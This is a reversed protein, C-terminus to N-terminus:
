SETSRRQPLRLPSRRRRREQWWAWAAKVQLKAWDTLRRAWRFETGLVTVMVKYTLLLAPRRETFARWRSLLLRFRSDSRGGAEIEDDLSM